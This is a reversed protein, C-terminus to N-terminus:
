MRAAKAEVLQVLTRNVPCPIKLEEARRLLFGNIHHIETQRRARVDDLMSPAFDDGCIRATKYVLAELREMGYRAKLDVNGAIEPLACLITSIERAIERVVKSVTAEQPKLMGCPADSIATLPNIIANVALKELQTFYLEDEPVIVTNLQPCKQLMRLAYDDLPQTGHFLIGQFLLPAPHSDPFVKQLVEDVTGIGNQFFYIRTTSSIRDRISELASATTFTKTAVFLHHIPASIRQDPVVLEVDYGTSCNIGDEGEVVVSKGGAEWEELLSERHLLLTVKPQEPLTRVAHALLKGVNGLGLIYIREM